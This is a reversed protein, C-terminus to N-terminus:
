AATGVIARLSARFRRHTSTSGRSLDIMDRLSLKIEPAPVHRLASEFPMDLRYRGDQQEIVIGFGRLTRLDRYFGRDDIDLRTALADKTILRGRIAMLFRVLRRARDPTMSPLRAHM